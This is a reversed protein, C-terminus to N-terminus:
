DKPVITREFDLPVVAVVDTGSFRMRSVAPRTFVNRTSSM